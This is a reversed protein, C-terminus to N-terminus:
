IRMMFIETTPSAWCNEWTVTAKKKFPESPDHDNKKIINRSIVLATKKDPSYELVERIIPEKKGGPGDQPGKVYISYGEANKTKKITLKIGTSGSVASVSIKPTSVKNAALVPKYSLGTFM